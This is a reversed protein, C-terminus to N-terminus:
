GDCKEPEIPKPGAGRRWRDLELRYAAYRQNYKDLKEQQHRQDVRHLAYTAIGGALVACIFWDIFTM